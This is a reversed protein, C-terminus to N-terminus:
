RQMSEELHFTEGNQRGLHHVVFDNVRLRAPRVSGNKYHRLNAFAAKTM